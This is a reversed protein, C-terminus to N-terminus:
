GLLVVIGLIYDVGFQTLFVMEALIKEKRAHMVGTKGRVHKIDYKRTSSGRKALLSGCDPGFQVVKKDTLGSGLSRGM